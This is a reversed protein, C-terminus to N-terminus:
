DREEASAAHRRASPDESLPNLLASGSLLVSHWPTIYKSMLFSGVPLVGLVIGLYWLPCLSSLVGCGM